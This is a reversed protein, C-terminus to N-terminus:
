VGTTATEAVKTLTTPLLDKLPRATRGYKVATMEALVAIAIEEPTVAGIDLGIPGHLRALEEESVGKRRLLARRQEQTRRSGILGIYRAESRLLVPLLPEEFKPDHTLVAVYTAADLPPLEELARHPWAVIIEAADPFRERTTYTARADVVTVRYGVRAALACLAPAAHVSGLILLRPLPAYSEVFVTIPAGTGDPSPYTMVQSVGNRLLRTADARVQEDLADDGLDLSGEGSGDLFVLLKAGAHDLPRVVTATAVPTDARLATSLRDFLSM